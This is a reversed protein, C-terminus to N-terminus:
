QREVSTAAPAAIVGDAVLSDLAEGDYGLEGLVTATDAGLEPGASRIRGPTREFRPIV